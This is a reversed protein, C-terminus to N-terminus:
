SNFVTTYSIKLTSFNGCFIIESEHLRKTIPFVILSLMQKIIKVTYQILIYFPKHM